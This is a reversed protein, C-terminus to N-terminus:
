SPSSPSLELPVLSFEINMVKLNSKGLRLLGRLDVNSFQSVHTQLQSMADELSEITKYAEKLNIAHTSVEDMAKHLEEETNTKIVKRNEEILQTVCQESVALADELSKIAKYAENPNVVNTSVEEKAKHLEEKKHAENLNIAHTSFEEIAKRLEEEMDTKVAELERKAKAVQCEHIYTACWKVKEIPKTVDAPIAVENTAAIMRLNIKSMELEHEVEVKELQCEKLYMACWKAKEVPYTVDIPIAIENTAEIVGSIYDTREEQHILDTKLEEIQANKEAMQQKLSDREEVLGKGKKVVMFLKERLLAAKDKYRQLHVQLSGNQDKLMHLEESLNEIKNSCKDFELREEALYNKEQAEVVLSETLRDIEVNAAKDEIKDYMYMSRPAPKSHHVELSCKKVPQVRKIIMDEDSKNKGQEVKIDDVVPIILLLTYSFKDNRQGFPTVLELIKKLSQM